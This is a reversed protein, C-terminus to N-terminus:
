IDRVMQYVDLVWLLLPVITGVLLYEGLEATRRMVPSFERNPAVVGLLVAMILLVMAVGFGILPRHGGALALSMTLAAVALAGGVTLVCAQTLDTHSRGRLCLVAAVVVSYIAPVTPHQPWPVVTLVAGTATVVVGGIVIGTLYANALHARRELADARPLAMAGIAGIGEIAPAPELDDSDLNAGATPVPPLPLTALVMTMRPAVAVTALGVAAWVAALDAPTMTTLLATVAASATLAATTSAAAHLVPGVTTLRYSVVVTLLVVTAGLALHAPGFGGPVCLMGTAFAPTFAAAAIATATGPDGNRRAILTAAVLLALVSVSVVAAPWMAESTLRVGLVSVGAVVSALVACGLGVIRAATASWNAFRSDNLRAIADVVDDFLATSDGTSATTLMLLDGDRVGSEALSRTVPLTDQGIPALTWQTRHAHPRHDDSGTDADDVDREAPRRSEIQTVLEGIFAALPVAAPLAIDLQTNGGLVSVRVLAPEIRGPAPVVGSAASGSTDTASPTDVISM